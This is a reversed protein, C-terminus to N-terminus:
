TCPPLYGFTEAARLPAAPIIYYVLQVLIIYSHHQGSLHVSGLSRARFPGWWRIEFPLESGVDGEQSVRSARFLLMALFDSFAPTWLEAPGRGADVFNAPSGAM